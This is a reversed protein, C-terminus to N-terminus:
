RRFMMLAALLGVGAIAIGAGGGGGGGGGGGTILAERSAGGGGTILAAERGTPTFRRITVPPPCSAAPPVTIFRRSETLTTRGVRPLPFGMRILNASSTALDNASLCDAESLPVNRGDWWRLLNTRPAGSAIMAEHLLRTNVARIYLLEAAQRATHPPPPPPPPPPVYGYAPDNVRQIAPSDCMVRRYYLFFQITPDLVAKIQAIGEVTVGLARAVDKLGDAVVGFIGEPSPATLAASLGDLTTLATRRFNDGAEGALFNSGRCFGALTNLTAADIGPVQAPNAGRLVWSIWEATKTFGPDQSFQKSIDVFNAVFQTATQIQAVIGRIESNVGATELAQRLQVEPTVEGLGRLERLGALSAYVGPLYISNQRAPAGRLECGCAM